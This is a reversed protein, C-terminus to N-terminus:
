KITTGISLLNLIVMISNKSEESLIMNKNHIKFWEKPDYNM